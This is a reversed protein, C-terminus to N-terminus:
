YTLQKLCAIKVSCEDDVAYGISIILPLSSFYGLKVGLLLFFCSSPNLYNILQAEDVGSLLSLAKIEVIIDEYCVFDPQYTKNLQV